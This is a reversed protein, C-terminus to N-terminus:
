GTKEIKGSKGQSVQFDLKKEWTKGLKVPKKSGQYRSDYQSLESRTFPITKIKTKNFNESVQSYLWIWIENYQVYM